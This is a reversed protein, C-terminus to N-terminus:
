GPKLKTYPNGATVFDEHRVQSLRTLLDAFSEAYDIYAAFLGYRLVCERMSSKRETIRRQHHKMDRFFTEQNNNYSPGNSIRYCTFLGWRRHRIAKTIYAIVAAYQPQEKAEQTLGEPFETVGRPRAARDIPLNCKQDRAPPQLSNRSNTPPKKLQAVETQLRQVESILQAVLALLKERSLNNLSELSPLTM